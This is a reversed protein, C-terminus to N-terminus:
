TGCEECRWSTGSPARPHPRRGALLNAHYLACEMEFAEAASPATAFMFGSNSGVLDVLTAALDKDARGVADVPQLVGPSITGLVYIGATGSPVFNKIVASDLRYPGRLTPAPM